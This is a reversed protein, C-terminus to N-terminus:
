IVMFAPANQPNEKVSRELALIAPGEKENEAQTTGLYYWADSNSPDRQVSAEFALAAQSLMGENLLALGESYPDSVSMLPNDVEFVYDSSPASVPDPDLIRPTDLFESSWEAKSENFDFIDRFKENWDITDSQSNVQNFQEEWSIQDTDELSKLVTNFKAEWDSNSGSHKLFEENWDEKKQFAKEFVNRERLSLSNMAGPMFEAKWPM